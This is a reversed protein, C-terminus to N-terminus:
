PLEKSGFFREGVEALVMGLLILGAGVMERSTFIEGGFSAAFLAAFVPELSFILATHTPTTHHQAWTQVGFVLATAAVGMYVIAPLAARPPLLLEREFILSALLTLLAVTFIQTITFPLVEHRSGFHATSVIHLAFALACGLVWLDGSAFALRRDLTLLSLGLTALVVGLVASRTPPQRLLSTALLPVLVVSLGTIFAAKGAETTRLGMTQTVFGAALFLGTLGGERVLGPTVADRRFLLVLALAMGAVWFRAAVFVLPGVTNLANKVIVFTSGWIVTVLVLAIDAHWRRM